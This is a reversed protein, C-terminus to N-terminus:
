SFACIEMDAHARQEWSCIWSWLRKKSCRSTFWKGLFPNQQKQQQRTLHKSVQFSAVFPHLSEVELGQLGTRKATQVLCKIWQERKYVIEFAASSIGTTPVEFLCKAQRTKKQTWIKGKRQHATFPFVLIMSWSYFSSSSFFFGAGGSADESMSASVVDDWHKDRKFWHAALWSNTKKKTRGNGPVEHQRLPTNRHTNSTSWSRLCRLSGHCCCCEWSM